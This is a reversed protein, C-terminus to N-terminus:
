NGTPDALTRRRTREEGTKNEKAEALVKKVETLPITLKVLDSLSANQEMSHQHLANNKGDMISWTLIHSSVDLESDLLLKRYIRITIEPKAAVRFLVANSEAEPLYKPVVNFHFDEDTKKSIKRM